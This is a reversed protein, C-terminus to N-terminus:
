GLGNPWRSPHGSKPDSRVAGAGHANMPKGAWTRASLAQGFCVYYGFGNEIHTTSTWFWSEVETLRFVPDIAAGRASSDRADPARRYDVVSQLEKVSPLRWDDYGAFELDAAYELAKAWNMAKGSDARMWMLGTARDTVTGDGNDVLDNEGHAPGRVCRVYQRGAGRGAVPYAKIRGDAFNFGFASRDGRMTTGVYRNSSRYQADIIRWGKSTDPYEFDFFETNIYPTMTRINGRFDAISFLEKITPLRWDNHGGLALSKAYSEAEDMTRRVFDPTKQWMLGTVLDTVTGDGNDRYSMQLGDYQADQGYFPEGPQPCSIQRYNDYCESQGTDVVPSEAKSRAGALAPLRVNLVLVTLAFLITGARETKM